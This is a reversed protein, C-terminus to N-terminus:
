VGMLELSISGTDTLLKFWKLGFMELNKPRRPKSVSVNCGSCVNLDNTTMHDSSPRKDWQSRRHQWKRNWDSDSLRGGSTERHPKWRQAKGKDTMPFLNKPTAVKWIWLHVQGYPFIQHDRTDWRLFCPGPQLWSAGRGGDCVREQLLAHVEEQEWPSASPQPDLRAKSDPWSFPASSCGSVPINIPSTYRSLEEEWRRKSVKFPRLRTRADAEQRLRGARATILQQQKGGTIEVQPPGLHCQSDGRNYKILELRLRRWKERKFTKKRFAM